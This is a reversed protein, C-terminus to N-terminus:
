VKKLHKIFAYHKRNILYGNNTDNSYAEREFSINRYAEHMNRFQILRIFWEIGYWLYFGVFLLEQMQNTHIAEHWQTRQSIPQHENRAFVVGFLNIAVSPTQKKM